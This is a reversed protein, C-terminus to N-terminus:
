AARGIVDQPGPADLAHDLLPAVARDIPLGAGLAAFAESLRAMWRRREAADGVQRALPEPHRLTWAAARWEVLRGLEVDAVVSLAGLRVNRGSVAENPPVIEGLEAGAAVVRAFWPAYFDGLDVAAMVAVAAQQAWVAAGALAKEADEHFPVGPYSM